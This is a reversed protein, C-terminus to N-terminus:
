VQVNVAKTVKQNVVFSIVWASETALSDNTVKVANIEVTYDCNYVTGDTTTLAKPCYVTSGGFAWEGLATAAAEVASKEDMKGSLVYVVPRSQSVKDAPMANLTDVVLIKADKLDSELQSQMKSKYTQGDHVTVAKNYADSINKASFKGTNTAYKTAWGDLATSSIFNVYEKMDSDLLDNAYTVANSVTEVPKNEEENGNGSGEGCASLMSVAMVGALMLSAIKKLKM